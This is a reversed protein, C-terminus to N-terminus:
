NNFVLKYIQFLTEASLNALHVTTKDGWDEGLLFVDCWGKNITTVYGVLYFHGNKDTTEVQPLEYEVDTIKLGEELPNEKLYLEVIDVGEIKSLETIAKDRAILYEKLLSM